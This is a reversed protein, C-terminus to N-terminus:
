GDGSRGEIFALAKQYSRNELFHRLHAPIEKGKERQLTDLELTANLVGESDANQMASLLDRILGAIQNEIM